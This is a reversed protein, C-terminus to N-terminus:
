HVPLGSLGSGVAFLCLTHQRPLGPRSKAQVIFGSIDPSTETWLPGVELDGQCQTDLIAAIFAQSMPVDPPWLASLMALAQQHEESHSLDRINPSAGGEGQQQVSQQGQSTGLAASLDLLGCCAPRQQVDAAM